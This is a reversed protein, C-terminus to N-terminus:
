WVYRSNNISAQDNHLKIATNLCFIISKRTDELYAQCTRIDEDIQIARKRTIRSSLAARDIINPHHLNVRSNGSNGSGFYMPDVFSTNQNCDKLYQCVGPVFLDYLKMWVNFYDFLNSRFGIHASNPGGPDLITSISLGMTVFRAALEHLTADQYALPPMTTHPFAGQKAKYEAELRLMQCDRTGFGDDLLRGHRQACESFYKRIEEDFIIVLQDAIEDRYVWPNPLRAFSVYQGKRQDILRDRMEAHKDRLNDYREQLTTTNRTVVIVEVFM